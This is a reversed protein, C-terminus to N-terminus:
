KGLIFRDQAATFYALQAYRGASYAAPILHRWEQKYAVYDNRSKM